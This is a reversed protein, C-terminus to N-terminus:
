KITALFNEGVKLWGEWDNVGSAVSNVTPNNKQITWMWDFCPPNNVAVAQFKSEDFCWHSSEGIYFEIPNNREAAQFSTITPTLNKM